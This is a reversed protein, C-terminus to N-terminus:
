RVRKAGVYRPSWYSSSLSDVRIGGSTTASIFNGNGVYIGTHSVGPEYTTFFVLDGPQLNQRPVFTGVKYQEDAMRPLKIGYDRFVYSTFGSCDFGRPTSGGFVYPVGIYRNATAVIRGGFSQQPTFKTFRPQDENFPPIQKGTLKFYTKADVVGSIHLGKDAQFRQVARSTEPGYEGDLHIHYGYKYLKQQIMLIQSGKDGMQYAGVPIAVVMFVLAALMIKSFKRWM